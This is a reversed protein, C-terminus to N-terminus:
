LTINYRNDELYECKVNFTWENMRYTLTNYSESAFRPLQRLDYRQQLLTPITENALSHIDGRIIM